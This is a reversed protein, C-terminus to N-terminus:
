FDKNMAELCAQYTKYYYRYIDFDSPETGGNSKSLMIRQAELQTATIALDHARQEKTLESM